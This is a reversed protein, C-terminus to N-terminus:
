FSVGFLAPVVLRWRGGPAPVALARAELFVARAGRKWAIGSGAQVAIGTTSRRRVGAASSNRGGAQAVGAGGVAYARGGALRPGDRVVNLLGWGAGYGHMAVRTTAGSQWSSDGDMFWPHLYGVDARLRWSAHHLTWAVSAQLLYATRAGEGSAVGGWAPGVAAEFRLAPPAGDRPVDQAAATDPAVGGLTAACAMVWRVARRSWPARLM